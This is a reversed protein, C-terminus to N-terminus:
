DSEYEDERVQISNLECNGVLYKVFKAEPAPDDACEVHTFVQVHVKCVFMDIPVVPSYCGGFIRGSSNQALTQVVEERSSEQAGIFTDVFHLSINVAFREEQIISNQANNCCNAEGEEDKVEVVKLSSDKEYYLSEEWDDIKLSDVIHLVVPQLPFFKLVSLILFDGDLMTPISGVSKGVVEEEFQLPMGIM